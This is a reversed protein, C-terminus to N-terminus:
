GEAGGACHNQAGHEVFELAGVFRGRQYRQTDAAAHAGRRDDLPNLVGVTSYSCCKSNPAVLIAKLFKLSSVSASPMTSAVHSVGPREIFTSSSVEIVSSSAIMLCVESSAATLPTTMVEPLSASHAPASREIISPM